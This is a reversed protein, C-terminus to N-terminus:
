RSPSRTSSRPPSVATTVAAPCRHVLGARVPPWPKIEGLGARPGSAAEIDGIQLRVEGDAGVVVSGYHIGEVIGGRILHAVPAHVPERVLPADALSSSYMVAQKEHLSADTVRRSRDHVQARCPRPRRVMRRGTGRRDAAPVARHHTGRRRRRVHPGPRLRPVGADRDRDLPLLRYGPPDARGEPDEALLPPSLHDPGLHRPYRDRRLEARDRVGRRARRLQPRRGPECIGSTLLIGGYPVQSRSIVSTFRPASGAMAMSRLIRGTSYLGSNLSSMAATLVVLNMVDGAAPIGINSLVTVFPSEGATYKNWPLLMSLLVVSGVYFVGVRWMISNIAKPMIKEPNETEGAAVGVLEVSAYAFVVGQIILLMPLLGHPFVGGSDSILSPGPSHGDVSHQTVLLFIGICMFVVLAGVKIIAFWFELEGFIKVSILNVTLVVALAILAIVWQPIDSCERDHTYTAVATIDAIGTTAWNLFYMWGATYAGKEGMFERAYSM